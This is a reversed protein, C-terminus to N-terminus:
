HHFLSYTIPTCVTTLMDPRIPLGSVQQGAKQLSAAVPKEEEVRQQLTRLMPRTEEIVAELDRLVAQLGIAFQDIARPANALPELKLADLQRKLAHRANFVGPALRRHQHVLAKM